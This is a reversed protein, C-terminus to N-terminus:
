VRDRRCVAHQTGASLGIRARRWTASINLQREARLEAAERETSCLTAKATYVTVRQPPTCQRVVAVPHETCLSRKQLM